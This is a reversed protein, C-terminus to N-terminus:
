KKLIFVTDNPVYVSDKLQYDIKMEYSSKGSLEKREGDLGGLYYTSWFCLIFLLVVFLALLLAKLENADDGIITGIYLLITFLLLWSIVMIFEM